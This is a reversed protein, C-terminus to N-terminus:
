YRTSGAAREAQGDPAYGHDGNPQDHAAAYEQVTQADRQAREKGTALDQAVQDTQEQAKRYGSNILEAAADRGGLGFALAAALALAGILAIFTATVIM